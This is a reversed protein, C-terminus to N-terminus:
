IVRETLDQTLSPLPLRQIAKIKGQTMKIQAILLLYVNRGPTIFVPNAFMKYNERWKERRIAQKSLQKSINDKKNTKHNPSQTSTGKSLIKCIHDVGTGERQRNKKKNIRGVIRDEIRIIQM